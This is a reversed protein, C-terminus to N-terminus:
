AITFALVRIIESEEILFVILRAIIVTPFRRFRLLLRSKILVLRCLLLLILIILLCLHERQIIMLRQILVGAPDVLRNPPIMMSASRLILIHVNLVLPLRLQVVFRPNM